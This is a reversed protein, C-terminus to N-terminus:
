VITPALYLKDKNITGGYLINGGHNDNLLQELRNLRNISVIKGYNGDQQDKHEKGYGEDIKRLLLNKFEPYISEHAYVHDVGVCTQGCNLFKGLLIRV